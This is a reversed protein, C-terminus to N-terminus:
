LAVSFLLRSHCFCLLLLCYHIPFGSLLARSLTSLLLQFLSHFTFLSSHLAPFSSYLASRSFCHLSRVGPLLSCLTFYLSCLAFCLSCLPSLLSFLLDLSWHLLNAPRYTLFRCLKCHKIYFLKLIQESTGLYTHVSQFM